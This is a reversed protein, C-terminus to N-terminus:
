RGDYTVNLSATLRALPFLLSMTAEVLLKIFMASSKVVNLSYTVDNMQNSSQQFQEQGLDTQPRDSRERCLPLPDIRRHRHGLECLVPWGRDGGWLGIILRGALLRPELPQPM